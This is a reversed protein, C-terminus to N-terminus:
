KVPWPTRTELIDVEDGRVVEGTKRVIANWGFLVGKIRDDGSRRQDILAKMTEPREAQGNEPNLTTVQCRTCPKVLEIEVAGVQLRHWNDEQWPTECDIVINPRFQTMELPIGARQSLARLSGTTTILLPYGDSLSVDTDAWSGSTKRSTQKDMRVLSVPQEMFESLANNIAASAYEVNVNDNWVRCLRRKGSWSAVIRRGDIVLVLKSDIIATGILAMNGHTRQTLFTGQSDVIMARRDWTLGRHEAHSSTLAIGRCSKVPYIHLSAVTPM